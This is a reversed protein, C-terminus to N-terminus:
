PSGGDLMGRITDFIDFSQAAAMAPEGTADDWRWEDSLNLLAGKVLAKWANSAPITILLSTYGDTSENWDDPIPLGAM